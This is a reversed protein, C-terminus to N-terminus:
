WKRIRITKSLRHKRFRFTATACLMQRLAPPLCFRVKERAATVCNLICTLAMHATNPRATRVVPPESTASPREKPSKKKPEQLKKTKDAFKQLHMYTTTYQGGGAKEHQMIVTNGGGGYCSSISLIVGDAAATVPTGEPVAVDMGQHERYCKGDPYKVKTSYSSNCSTSRHCAEESIRGVSNLSGKTKVPVTNLCGKQMEEIRSNPYLNRSAAAGDIKCPHFQVACTNSVDAARASSIGATNLGLWLVAAFALGAQRTLKSINTMMEM